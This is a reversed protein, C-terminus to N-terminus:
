TKAVVADKGAGRPHGETGNDYEAIEYEGSVIWLMSSRWKHVM